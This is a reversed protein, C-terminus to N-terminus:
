YRHRNHGIASEVSIGASRESQRTRDKRTLSQLKAVNRDFHMQQIAPKTRTTAYLEMQQPESAASEYGTLSLKPSGIQASYASTRRVPSSELIPVASKDKVHGVLNVRLQLVASQLQRDGSTGFNKLAWSHPNIAHRHVYLGNKEWFKTRLAVGNILPSSDAKMYLKPEGEYDGKISVEFTCESPAAIKSIFVLSVATAAGVQIVKPCAIAVLSLGNEFTVSVPEYSGEPLVLSAAASQRPSLAHFVKSGSNGSRSTSALAVQRKMERIEVAQNLAWTAAEESHDDGGATHHQSIHANEALAWSQQASLHKFASLHAQSAVALAQQLHVRMDYNANKHRQAVATLESKCREMETPSNILSAVGTVVSALEQTSFMGGCDEHDDINKIFMDSIQFAFVPIASAAAIDLTYPNHSWGFPVVVLDSCAILEAVQAEHEPALTLPKQSADMESFAYDMSAKLRELYQPVSHQQEVMVIRTNTTFAELMAALLSQTFSLQGEDWISLMFLVLKTTGKVKAEDWIKRMRSLSPPRFAAVSVGAGSRTMDWVSVRSEVQVTDALMKALHASDAITHHLFPSALASERVSQKADRGKTLFDIRVTRPLVAHMWPLLQYGLESESIFVVDLIRSRMFSALFATVATAALPQQDDSLVANLCFVDGTLELFSAEWAGCEHLREPPEPEGAPAGTAMVTVDWDRQRMWRVVELAFKNKPSINFRHMLLLARTTQSTSQLDVIATNWTSSSSAIFISRNTTPMSEFNGQNWDSARPPPNSQSFSWSPNPPSGQVPPRWGVLSEPITFGPLTAISVPATSRVLVPWAGMRLLKAPDQAGTKWVKVSKGVAEVLFSGVWIVWPHMELYWVMKELATAALVHRVRMQLMFVPGGGAKYMSKNLRDNSTTEMSRNSASGSNVRAGARDRGEKSPPKNSPIEMSTNACEQGQGAVVEMEMWAPRLEETLERILTPSTAEDAILRVVLQRFTQDSLSRLADRALEHHNEQLSCVMLEV